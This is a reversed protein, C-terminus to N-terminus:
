SHENKGDKILEIHKRIWRMFFVSKDESWLTGTGIDDLPVFFMFGNDCRYWFNGDRFYVFTVGKDAGVCDTIKMENVLM